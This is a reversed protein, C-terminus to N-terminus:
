FSQMAKEQIFYPEISFFLQNGIKEENVFKVFECMAMGSLIDVVHGITQRTGCASVVEVAEDDDFLTDSFFEFHARNIPNFSHIYGCRPDLRTEIVLKINPNIKMAEVLNKRSKMTDTLLFVIGNLRTDATVEVQHAHIKEGYGHEILDQMAQVKPKGIDNLDFVQNNVNHEEVIDFDYIHIQRGLFGLEILNKVIRSGTAGVGIVHIKGTYDSPNIIGSSRSNNIM